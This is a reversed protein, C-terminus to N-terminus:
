NTNLKIKQAVIIKTKLKELVPKWENIRKCRLIEISPYWITTKDDFFWRWDANYNLLLTAKIGLVGCLHIISTDTSFIFDLKPLQHSLEYFNKEGLDLFNNSHYTIKDKFNLGKSLKYFNINKLSL